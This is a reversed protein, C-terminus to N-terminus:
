SCSRRDGLQDRDLRRCRHVPHDGAGIRENGTGEDRIGAAAYFMGMMRVVRPAAPSSCNPMSRLSRDTTPANPTSAARHNPVAGLAAGGLAFVLGLVQVSALHQDLLASGLVTATVPSLLGLFTVATAALRDLGRFWLVYAAATNVAALYFYGGINVATVAPPGGEVVVALPILLLGGAALQWGTFTLAGVGDPRGWRKALVTATTMSTTAAIGAVVGVPDLTIPNQSVVLGVGVVAFVGGALKRRTPRDGLLGSSLGIALLPALSGFIAAVGGPLRYASLFLLPIFVGIYLAGLM